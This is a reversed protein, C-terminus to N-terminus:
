DNNEFTSYMFRKPDAMFNKMFEVNEIDDYDILSINDAKINYIDANPYATLIPSHLVIIFQSGKKIQEDIM